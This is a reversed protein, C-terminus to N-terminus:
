IVIPKPGAKLNKNMIKKQHLKKEPFTKAPKKVFRRDQQRVSIESFFASTVKVELIVVLMPLMCVVLMVEEMVVKVVLWMAVVVALVAVVVMVVSLVATVAVVKVM